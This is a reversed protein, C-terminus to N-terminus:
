CLGRVCRDEKEAVFFFFQTLALQSVSLAQGVPKIETFLWLM